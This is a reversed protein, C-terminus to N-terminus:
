RQQIRTFTLTVGSLAVTSQEGYAPPQMVASRQVWTGHDDLFVLTVVPNQPNYYQIIRAFEDILLTSYTWTMTEFGQLIPTAAMSHGLVARPTIVISDPAVIGTDGNISYANVAPCILYYLLLAANNPGQITYTLAMAFGYQSVSITYYLPIALTLPRIATPEQGDGFRSQALLAQGFQLLTHAPM